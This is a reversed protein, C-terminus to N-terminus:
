NAKDFCKEKKEFITPELKPNLTVSALKITMINEMEITFPLWVGEVKRYDSFTYLIGATTYTVLMKNGADFSLGVASGKSDVGSLIHRKRGEIEYEGEYKLAKLYNADLTDFIPAFLNARSTDLNPYLESDLGYDTQLFSTKGNYVERVEGMEPSNFVMVFKDPLQRAAYLSSDSSGIEASGKAEYSSIRNLSDLGGFASLYDAIVKLSKADSPAPPRSPPKTFLRAPPPPPPADDSIAVTNPAPKVETKTKFASDDAALSQAKDLQPDSGRLLMQRSLPVIYDPELGTGELSIGKPTIFDAVPYVMVAGTSLKLWVAPLSQGGTREGVVIARNQGQLGATFMEAASMSMGDVLLIIKGKFNKNKAAATFPTTGTRSVFNGLTISKDTVMGSLGIMSGLIGGLNGRLDIIIAKKDGFDGLSTCFKEIVPIAFANFKIYGIEPSLSFAEFRLFQQPLNKSISIAEGALELRPVVFEKATETEDICSLFVSTDPEGNLFLEGIQIPLMFRLDSISTGDILAKDIMEKVSVGNIKDIIYGPKLGAIAAGSQKEVRSIVIHNDLMRLEVGVGYRFRSPDGFLDPEDGADDAAAASGKFKAAAIQKGRVRAQKQAAELQEFYEPVIVALHSKGLRNMMEDLIQHFQRDTKAIRVKPEYEARITNWDLGGFTKDFYYQNLTTWATNFAEMRRQSPTPNSSSVIVNATIPKIRVPKKQATLGSSMPAAVLLLFATRVFFRNKM